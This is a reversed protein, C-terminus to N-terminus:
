GKSNFVQKGHTKTTKSLSSAVRSADGRLNKMDKIFDGKSPRIYESGANLVLVQRAGEIFNRLHEMCIHYTLHTFLEVLNTQQLLLNM